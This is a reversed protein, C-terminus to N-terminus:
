HVFGGSVMNEFAILLHLRILAKAYNFRASKGKSVDTVGCVAVNIEHLASESEFSITGKYVPGSVTNSVQKFEFVGGRDQSGQIVSGRIVGDQEVEGVCVTVGRGEEEFRVKKGMVSIQIKETQELCCWEGSVVGQGNAQQLLDTARQSRISMERQIKETSGECGVVKSAAEDAEGEAAAAKTNESDKRAMGPYLAVAAMHASEWADKMAPNSSCSEPPQGWDLINPDHAKEFYNCISLKFPACNRSFPMQMPHPQIGLKLEQGPALRAVGTVVM